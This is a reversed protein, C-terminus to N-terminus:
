RFNYINGNQMSAPTFGNMNNGPLKKKYGPRYAMPQQQQHPPFRNAPGMSANPFQQNNQMAYNTATNMNNNYRMTQQQGAYGPAYNAQYPNPNSNPGQQYQQQAPNYYPQRYAGQMPLQQQQPQQPQQSYALRTQQQQPMPPQNNFRQRNQALPIQPQQQASLPGPRVQQMQQRRFYEPNIGRQSVSTFDSGPDSIGDDEIEPREAPDITNKRIFEEDEEDIAENQKMYNSLTPPADDKLQLVSGPKLDATNLTDTRTPPHQMGFKNNPQRLSPYSNQNNIPMESYKSSSDSIDRVSQPFTKGSNASIPVQETIPPYANSSSSFRKNAVASFPQQKNVDDLSMDFDNDDKEDNINSSSNYNNNNNNNINTFDFSDSNNTHATTKLALNSGLVTSSNNNSQYAKPIGQTFFDDDKYNLNTISVENKENSVATDERNLLNTKALGRDLRSSYGDTSETDENDSVNNDFYANRKNTYVLFTLPLSVLNLVASPILIWACWNVHPYFLLFVVICSFASGTFALFTLLLDVLFLFVSGSSIFGYAINFVMSIFVVGASVPLVLLLESLTKRANSAMKWTDENKLNQFSYANYNASAKSCNSGEDTCYGFVGYRYGNYSSLSIQHFVPATVCAIILAAMSAFQLVTIVASISFAKTYSM